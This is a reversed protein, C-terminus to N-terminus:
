KRKLIWSGLVLTDMGSRLYTDLADTPTEVIPEGVMNFSTNLIVPVGTQEFFIELVVRYLDTGPLVSQYRASGDVHVVAPILSQKDKKVRGAFSMFPSETAIEFYESVHEALISPAYPRFPERRKVENVRDHMERDRPDAIISSQGLARPGYEARGNRLGVVEGVLLSKVVETALKTQDGIQIASHEQNKKLFAKVADAVVDDQYTPGLAASRIGKLRAVSGSPIPAAYALWLANGLSQGTDAPAPPVYLALDTRTQALKGLAVCNMAVGGGFAVNKVQHKDALASVTNILASELQNQLLAAVDCLFKQEPNAPRCLEQPIDYGAAHLVRNIQRIPDCHLDPVNVQISHPAQFDILKVDALNAPDGFPALAMTKGAYQYSHWGLYHTVSRYLEGLGIENIGGAEEHVKHIQVRSGVWECIYYDQRQFAGRWWDSGTKFSNPEGYRNGIGDMVCVLSREMGSGVFALMAHSEHHDITFVKGRFHSAIQKPTFVDCWADILSDIIDQEKTWPVDCCTSHGVVDIQELSLGAQRLCVMGSQRFGPSYRKRTHREEITACVIEGGQILAAGGDSIPRRNEPDVRIPAARGSCVGLINM